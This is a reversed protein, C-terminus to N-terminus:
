VLHINSERSCYLKTIKFGNSNEREQLECKEIKKKKRSEKTKSLELKSIIDCEDITDRM